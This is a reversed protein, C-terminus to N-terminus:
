ADRKRIRWVAVALVVAAYGALTALGAWPSQPYCGSDPLCPSEVQEHRPVTGQIAFGAVPTLRQLWRSLGLPLASFLILPVVFVVVVTVVATATRRLLAGLGLALVSILSLVVATGVVARLAPGDGLGLHPFVPPRHGNDRLVPMGVAFSVVAAVLGAAFTTAGLVVAKAVLVRGRRPSAAFTTLIMGRRYESTIFLTGLAALLILGLQSGSLAMVALDTDVPAPGIDGSGTLTFGDETRVLEGKGGPPTGVNTLEWDGTAAGTLSVHDFRATSRSPEANVSVNGFERRVSQDEPSAVFLGVPVAGAAGDLEVVGVEDWTVGDASEYGTVKGGERTLRLWRATGAPTASGAVDRVFASQLRVGHGATMM